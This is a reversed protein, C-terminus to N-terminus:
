PHRVDETKADWAWSVTWGPRGSPHPAEHAVYHHDKRRHCRQHSEPSTAPCQPVVPRM